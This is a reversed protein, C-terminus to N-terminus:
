AQVDLLKVTIMTLYINGYNNGIVEPPPVLHLDVM